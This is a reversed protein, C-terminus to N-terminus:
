NKELTDGDEVSVKLFEDLRGDAESIFSKLMDCSVIPVGNFYKQNSPFLTVIVPVLVTGKKLNKDCSLIIKARAIQKIVASNLNSASLIKHWQKCDILLGYSNRLALIDVEIRPRKLRYNKFTKYGFESFIMEVFNEFDQWRIINFVENFSAGGKIAQIALSIIAGEKAVFNEKRDELFGQEILIGMVESVTQYPVGTEKSIDDISFSEKRLYPLIKLLTKSNM